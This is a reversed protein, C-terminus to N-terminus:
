CVLVYSVHVVQTLQYGFLEIGVVGGAVINVSFVCVSIVVCYMICHSNHVLQHYLTPTTQHTLFKYFSDGWFTYVTLPHLIMLFFFFIWAVQLLLRSDNSFELSILTQKLQVGLWYSSCACM